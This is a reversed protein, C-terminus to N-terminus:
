VETVGNWANFLGDLHERSATILGMEDSNYGIETRGELLQFVVDEVFLTTPIGDYGKGRTAETDVSPPAIEV